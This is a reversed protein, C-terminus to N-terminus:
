DTKNQQEQRNLWLSSATLGFIVLYMIFGYVCAPLDAIEFNKEGCSIIAEGCGAESFLEYYSLYGSFLLGAIAIVLIVQLTRKYPMLLFYYTNAM